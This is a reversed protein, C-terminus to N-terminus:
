FIAGATLVSELNGRYMDVIRNGNIIESTAILYHRDKLTRNLFRIAAIEAYTVGGIFFVLIERKKRTESDEDENSQEELEEGADTRNESEMLALALPNSSGSKEMQKRRLELDKQKAIRVERKKEAAKELEQRKEQSVEPHTMKGPLPEMISENGYWGYNELQLLRISLPAYGSYVFNVDEPNSFDSPEAEEQILDFGEVVKDWDPKAAGKRTLLGAKNLNQLTFQELPGYYRTIEREFKDFDHFKLGKKTISELCLLRLVKEIPQKQRILELIFNTILDGTESLLIAQEIAVKHNFAETKLANSISDAINTHSTLSYYQKSVQDFLRFLEHYGSESIESGKTNKIREIDKFKGTFLTRLVSFHLNRVEEYFEDESNLPLMKKEDTELGILTGPVCIHSNEISYMDDIMGEYTFQTCFPTILDVTRDVFIACDIQSELEDDALDDIAELDKLIKLVKHAGKGKGYKHQIKGYYSELKKVAEAVNHYLSTTEDSIVHKFSGKYELSILDKDMPILALEFDEVAVLDLVGEIQLIKECILTKRPCIYIYYDADIEKRQHGHIQYAINRMMQVEPMTLYIVTEGPDLDIDSEEQIKFILSIDYKEKLEAFNTVLSLMGGLSPDLGLIKKGPVSELMEQLEHETEEKLQEANVEVQLLDDM